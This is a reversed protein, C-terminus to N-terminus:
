CVKDRNAEGETGSSYCKVAYIKVTYGCMIYVESEMIGSASIRLVIKNRM